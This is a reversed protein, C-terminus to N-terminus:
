ITFFIFMNSCIGNLAETCCVRRVRLAGGALTGAVLETVLKAGEAVFLGEAQRGRKDGLSRIMQIEAKTLM